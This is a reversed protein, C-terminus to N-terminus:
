LRRQMAKDFEKIEEDDLLGGLVELAALQRKMRHDDAMIESEKDPVTIFVRQDKELVLPKVPRVANGDYYAEVTM